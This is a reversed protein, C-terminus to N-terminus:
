HDRLPIVLHCFPTARTLSETIAFSSGLSGKILAWYATFPSEGAWIILLSCLVFASLLALIPSLRSFAPTTERLELRM